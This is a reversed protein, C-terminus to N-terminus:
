STEELVPNMEVSFQPTARLNRPAARQFRVPARVRRKQPRPAVHPEDAEDSDLDADADFTGKYLNTEFESMLLYHEMQNCSTICALEPDDLDLLHDPFDMDAIGEESICTLEGKDAHLPDVDSMEQILASLQEPNVQKFQQLQQLIVLPNSNPAEDMLFDGGADSSDRGQQQHFIFSDTRTTSETVCSHDGGGSSKEKRVRRRKERLPILFLALSSALISGAGLYYGTKRGLVENMYGSVPIAIAIPIAHSSHLIAWARPFNRARVREFTYMKLSYHYGGCFVGYIWVFLVHGHYGEISVLSLQSLGCVLLSALFLFPTHIGLASLATSFLLIQLTRSKLPQFDLIPPKDSDGGRNGKEGVGKVKRKQTKLHLIARRQPHYLTASRYCTGLISTVVVAGTVAQLGLRWGSSAITFKLFVSMVALGIGSGSVLFTEVLERRRKFYQGVMLTSTDRTLGVGLGLVFGYSFFIQHFETAFSTFLCGLSSILGGLVATLRTSKRRCVGVIVPSLLHSVSMNVAGLCGIQLVSAHPFFRRIELLWQGFALQLGLAMIVCATSCVLVVWGWGGEPYYHQRITSAKKREENRPMLPANVPAVPRPLRRAPRGVPEVLVDEELRAGSSSNMESHVGSDHLMISSAASDSRALQPRKQLIQEPSTPGTGTGVVQLVEM